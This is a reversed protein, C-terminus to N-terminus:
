LASLMQSLRAGSWNGAQARPLAFIRSEPGVASYESSCACLFGAKEVLHESALDFAGFPYAFALPRSGTLLRCRTVSESIEQEKEAPDLSTLWPHSVAHSGFEIPSGALSRVQQPTMARKAPPVETTGMAQRRLDNVSERLQAPIRKLLRLYIQRYASQRPTRPRAGPRWRRDGSRREGLSVNEGDLSLSSGDHGLVIEEIEEWWFPLGDEIAEVELFVTAPAGFDELIPVAVDHTCAYGDDFTLSVAEAPLAGRRHLAAFQNLPLLTRNKSLWAIQDRFNEPNVALGWPDFAEEAIRHYMLIAPRPRRPALARVERGIRRVRRAFGSLARDLDRVM